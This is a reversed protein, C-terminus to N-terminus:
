LESSRQIQKETLHGERLFRVLVDGPILEHGNRVAAYLSLFWLYKDKHAPSAEMLQVARDHASTGWMLNFPNVVNRDRFHLIPTAFPGNVFRLMWFVDPIKIDDSVVVAPNSISRELKVARALADSAVFMHSGQRLEWYKGQTVAGRLMLNNLLATFWLNQIATLVRGLDDSTVLVADSYMTMQVGKATSSSLFRGFEQYAELTKDFDSLIRNSFGLIDCYGVYRIEVSSESPAVGKAPPGATEESM